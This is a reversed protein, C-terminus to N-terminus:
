LHFASNLGCIKFLYAAIGVDLPDSPDVILMDTVDRMNIKGDEKQETSFFDDTDINLDSLRSIFNQKSIDFAEPSLDPQPTNFAGEPVAFADQPININLKGDDFSFMDGGENMGIPAVGAMIGGAAKRQPTQFMPRNAINQRM